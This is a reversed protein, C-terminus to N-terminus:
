YPPKFLHALCSRTTTGPLVTDRERSLSNTSTSTGPVLVLVPVCLIILIARSSWERTLRTLVLILVKILM